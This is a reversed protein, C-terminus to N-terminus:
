NMNFQDNWWNMKELTDQYKARNDAAYSNAKSSLQIIENDTAMAFWLMKRFRNEIWSPISATSTMLPPVSGYDFDYITLDSPAVSFFIKDVTLDLWCVGGTTKYQGRDSYNVVQYPQRNVGIFIVCPRANNYVPMNNETYLNNEIFMGFDTPKAIYYLGTTADLTLAGTANKKLKEWPREMAVDQIKDNLLDLEEDSSLETLDNVQLEFKTIIEGATLDTKSM